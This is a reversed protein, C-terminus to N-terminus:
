EIVEFYTYRNNHLIDQVILSKGDADVPFHSAVVDVLGDETLTLQDVMYVGRRQQIVPINFLANALTPDVVKGNKIEITEAQVKDSGERFVEAAFTGNTLESASLLSLDARVVVNRVSQYPSATVGVRIYDGPALGLGQPLTQFKITHDIRRRISMLYRAVIFAHGRRTCYGSMDFDEQRPPVSGEQKWKVLITQEQPLGNVPMERYKMVARFDQRESQEVYDLSFSGEIINSDNFYATIPVPGADLEGNSQVPVAPVLGFKGNKIVFNCLFFPALQTVYSRINVQDTIAGDFRLRTQRIFRAANKFSDVDILRKSVEQGISSGTQTLLWHVIDAFNNTPGYQDDEIRQISIGDKLYIQPQQFSQVQNLTRLKLGVMTLNEYSAIENTDLSENLYMIQHEPGRECSRTIEGYCSLEKIGAKDEFERNYDIQEPPLSIEQVVAQYGYTVYGSRDFQKAYWSKGLRRTDDYREGQESYGHTEKVTIQIQEWAKATGNRDVFAADWSYDGVVGTMECVWRTSQSTFEFSRTRREFYVAKDNGGTPDKLPGLITELYAQSYGGGFAGPSGGPQGGVTPAQGVAVVGVPLLGNKREIRDPPAGLDGTRLEPLDFLDELAFTVANFKLSFLGYTTQESYDRIPGTSDLVYIQQNEYAAYRHVNCADKPILRFEYEGRAPHKIRIYNYVNVPANNRVAFMVGNLTDFGDFLEDSDNVDNGADDLGLPNSASKVALMFFSTRNMYKAMTGGNLNVLDTDLKILERPTPVENFNCLGNAQAWVQSQIGIESVEVARTNAVQAIDIKHLPYWSVSRYSEDPISFGGESLIPDIVTQNGAIGIEHNAGTFGIVELEYRYDDGAQWLSQPRNVVKLLTRNIMFIDGMKMEDDAQERLSNIENNLDGAGIGQEESLGTNADNFEAASIRFVVKDGRNVSVVTPLDYEQSNVAVVGMFTGYARGTGPQGNGAAEAERGAIKRRELESRSTDKVTHPISITRWNIRHHGGNTISRYVGFSSANNPSYASSFGPGNDSSMTPALFNGDPSADGQILNELSVRNPGTKSSWFFAYNSKYLSAIPQGGLLVGEVRPAQEITSQGVVALVKLSQFSGNSLMRSWVLLPEVVIGGSPAGTEGVDTDDGPVETGYTEYRGFPLPVRSGLEALSPASDFGVGSNFRTRGQQSLLNRQQVERQTQTGPDDAKPKPSLLSVATSALGIVLSIIAIELGGANIDPIHEYGAPRTLGRRAVEAAFARYEQESIGLTEILQREYPLLPQRYVASPVLASGEANPVHAVLGREM